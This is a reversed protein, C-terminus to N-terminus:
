EEGSTWPDRKRSETVREETEEELDEASERSLNRRKEPSSLETQFIGGNNDFSVARDDTKEPKTDASESTRTGVVTLTRM